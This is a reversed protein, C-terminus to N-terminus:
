FDGCNAFPFLSLGKRGISDQNRFPLAITNLLMSLGAEFLTLSLELNISLRDGTRRNM